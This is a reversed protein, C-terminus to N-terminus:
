SSTRILLMYLNRLAFLAVCENMAHNCVLVCWVQVAGARRIPWCPAPPLLQSSFKSISIFPTQVTQLKCLNKCFITKRQPLKIRPYNLGEEYIVGENIHIKCAGLELRIRQLGPGSQPVDLLGVGVLPPLGPHTLSDKVRGRTKKRM